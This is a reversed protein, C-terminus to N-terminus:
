ALHHLLLTSCVSHQYIWHLVYPLAVIKVLDDQQVPGHSLEPMKLSLGGSQIIRRSKFLIIVKRREGTHPQFPSVQGLHRRFVLCDSTHNQFSVISYVGNLRGIQVIQLNYQAIQQDGTQAALSCYRCIPKVVQCNRNNCM